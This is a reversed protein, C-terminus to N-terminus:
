RLTTFLRDAQPQKLALRAPDQPYPRWPVTRFAATRDGLASLISLMKATTLADDAKVATRATEVLAPLKAPNVLTPKLKAFLSRLFAQQRQIRGLDSGDGLGHRVRVYALAEEGKVLHKGKPLVLGSKPDDVEVPLQIEVGGVLETLRKVATFDIVILHDIRAGTLKQVTKLTCSAGGVTFADNIMFFRAPSTTGEPTECAPIQVMLDRPFSVITAKAGNKPLHALMITDSRAARDDYSVNEGKRSDSGLFLVNVSDTLKAPADASDLPPLEGVPARQTLLATPVIIAAATVAAAAGMLAWGGPR